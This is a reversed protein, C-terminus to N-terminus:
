LIETDNHSYAPACCCLLRLEQTGTNRLCHATGPPICVSDGPGVNFADDGLSMHGSGSLIHYIEESERHRHLATTAGAPVIAEALSQQQVSHQNPHMLERILSGDKSPYPKIEPLNTKTTM